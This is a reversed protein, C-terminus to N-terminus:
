GKLISELKQDFSQTPMPTETLPKLAEISKSKQYKNLTETDSPMLEPRTFRTLILFRLYKKNLLLTKKLIELDEKIIQFFVVGFYAQNQKKVPYALRKKIVTLFDVNTGGSSSIIKNLEATEAEVRDEAIEPSLLYSMEYEKKNEMKDM